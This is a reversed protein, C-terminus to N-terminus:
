LVVKAPERGLVAVEAEALSAPAGERRRAKLLRKTSESEVRLARVRGESRDSDTASPTDPRGGRNPPGERRHRADAGYLHAANM